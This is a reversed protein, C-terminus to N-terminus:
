VKLVIARVSPDETLYTSDFFNNVFILTETSTLDSTRSAFNAIDTFLITAEIESGKVPFLANFGDNLVGDVSLPNSILFDELSKYPFKTFKMM